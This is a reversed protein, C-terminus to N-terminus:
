GTQGPVSQIPAADAPIAPQGADTSGGPNASPAGAFSDTGTPAGASVSANQVALDGGPLGACVTQEAGETDVRQVLADVEQAPNGCIAGAATVAADTSVSELIPVGGVAVTVLGDPAEAPQANAMGLGATFLVSGGLVTGAAVNKFCKKIDTM